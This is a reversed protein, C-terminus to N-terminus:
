ENEVISKLELYKEWIPNLETNAGVEQYDGMEVKWTYVDGTKRVKMSGTDGLRLSAYGKRVRKVFAMKDGLVTMIEGGMFRLLYM